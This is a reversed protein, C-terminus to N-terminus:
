LEQRFLKKALPGKSARMPSRKIVKRLKRDIRDLDYAM